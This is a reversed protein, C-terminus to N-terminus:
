MVVMFYFLVQGSWEVGGDVRECDKEGKRDNGLVDVWGEGVENGEKHGTTM